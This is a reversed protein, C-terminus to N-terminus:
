QFRVSVGGADLETRFPGVCAGEMPFDEGPPDATPHDVAYYVLVGSPDNLTIRVRDAPAPAVGRGTDSVFFGLEWGPEGNFEGRAVMGGGGYCIPTPDARGVFVIREISTSKFKGGSVEPVSVKHFQFVLNGTAEHGEWRYDTFQSPAHMGTGRAWGAFSIKWNGERVQGQGQVRGTVMAPIDAIVSQAPEGTPARAPTGAQQPQVLDGGCGMLLVLSATAVSGAREQWSM